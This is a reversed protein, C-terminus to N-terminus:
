SQGTAQSLHDIWLVERDFCHTWRCLTVLLTALKFDCETLELSNRLLHGYNSYARWYLLLLTGDQGLFQDLALVHVLKIHEISTSALRSHISQSIGSGKLLVDQTVQRESSIWALYAKIDAPVVFGDQLCITPLIDRPFAPPYQIECHYVPSKMLLLYIDAPGLPPFREGQKSGTFPASLLIVQSLFDALWEQETRPARHYWALFHEIHATSPAHGITKEGERGSSLLLERGSVARYLDSVTVGLADCLFIVSLLHPQTKGNEVRSITSIEVESREALDRITIRQALRLSQIWTGVELLHDEEITSQTQNYCVRWLLLTHVHLIILPAYCGRQKM